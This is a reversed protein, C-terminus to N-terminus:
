DQQKSNIRVMMIHDPRNNVSVCMKGNVMFALGGFAGKEEPKFSSLATRVVEALTQDYAM